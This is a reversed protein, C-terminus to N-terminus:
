GVCWWRQKGIARLRSHSIQTSKHLRWLSGLKNDCLCDNATETMMLNFLAMLFMLAVCKCLSIPQDLAKGSSVLLTRISPPVSAPSQFTLFLSLLFRIRLWPPMDHNVSSLPYNSAHRHPLRTKICWFHTILVEGPGESTILIATRSHNQKNTPQNPPPHSLFLDFYTTNLM